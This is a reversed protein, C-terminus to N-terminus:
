LTAPSVYTNNKTQCELNRKLNRKARRERKQKARETARDQIHQPYKDFNHTYSM